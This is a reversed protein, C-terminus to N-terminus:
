QPLAGRERPHSAPPRPPRSSPAHARAAHGGHPLRCPHWLNPVCADRRSSLAWRSPEPFPPRAVWRLSDDQVHILRDGRYAPRALAQRTSLRRPAPARVFFTLHCFDTRRMARRGARPAALCIPPAASASSSEVRQASACSPPESTLVTRSLRSVCELWFAAVADALPTVRDIAVRRFADQSHERREALHPTPVTETARTLALRAGCPTRRALQGDTRSGAFRHGRRRRPADSIPVHV